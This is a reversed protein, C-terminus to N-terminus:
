SSPEQKSRSVGRAMWMSSSARHRGCCKTRESYQTGAEAADPDGLGLVVAGDTLYLFGLEPELVMSLWGKRLAENNLDRADDPALSRRLNRVAEVDGDTCAQQLMALDRERASGLM